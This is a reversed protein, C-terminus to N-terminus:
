RRGRLSEAMRRITEPGTGCCGGLINVGADVMPPVFRVFEEPTQSYALAGAADIEPRGSNAQAVVPLTTAARMVRALGAMRESDLTCNAGVAAAGDAALADFSREVPDGMLTFFGRPFANFTLTALVPRDPAARRAARVACRAERLDFQTEVIFADVGGEALARAQEEYAAEFEPEDFEGQPKLFKGVPGMSGLVFRGAPRAEVAVAAAARNLEATRAEQGYAALKIRTGGFSNTTVADSGAAFYDRHVASVADPRDVNWLELCAGHPLGRRMLETGMAGDLLVVRQRALALLEPM